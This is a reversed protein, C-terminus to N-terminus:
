YDMISSSSMVSIRIIGIIPTPVKRSWGTISTPLACPSAAAVMLGLTGYHSGQVGSILETTLGVVLLRSDLSWLM